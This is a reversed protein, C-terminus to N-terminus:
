EISAALDYLNVKMLRGLRVIDFRKFEGEYINGIRTWEDDSLAKEPTRDYQQVSKGIQCRNPIRFVFLAQMKVLSPLLYKWKEVDIGARICLLAFEAFLFVNSSDPESVLVDEAIDRVKLTLRHKGAAFEELASRVRSQDDNLKSSAAHFVRSLHELQERPDYALDPWPSSRPIPQYYDPGVHLVGKRYRGIIRQWCLRMVDGVADKRFEAEQRDAVVFDIYDSNTQSDLEFFYDQVDNRIKTNCRSMREKYTQEKREAQSELEGRRSVFYTIRPRRFRGQFAIDLKQNIVLACPMSRELVVCRRKSEFRREVTGGTEDPTAELIESSGADYEVLARVSGVPWQLEINDNTSSM